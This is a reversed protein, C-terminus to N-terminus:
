IYENLITYKDTNRICEFIHEKCENDENFLYKLDDISKIKNILEEYKEKSELEYKYNLENKIKSINIEIEDLIRLTNEQNM